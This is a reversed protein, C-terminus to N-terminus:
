VLLRVGVEDEQKLGRELIRLLETSLCSRAWGSAGFMLISPLVMLFSTAIKDIEKWERLHDDM